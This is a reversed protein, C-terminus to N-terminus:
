HKGVVYLDGDDSDDETDPKKDTNGVLLQSEQVGFEEEENDHKVEPNEVTKKQSLPYYRDKVVWVVLSLLFSIVSSVQIVALFTSKVDENQCAAFVEEEVRTFYLIIASFGAVALLNRKPKLTFYAVIILM